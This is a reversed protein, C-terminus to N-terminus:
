NKKIEWRIEDSLHSNIITNKTVSVADNTCLGAFVEEEVTLVFASGDDCLLSVRYTDKYNEHVVDLNTIVAEFSEEERTEVNVREAWAEGAAVTGPTFLAFVLIVGIFGLVPHEAAGLWLAGIFGAMMLILLFIFLFLM